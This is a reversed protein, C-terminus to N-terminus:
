NNQMKTLFDEPVKSLDEYIWDAGNLDGAQFSTTLALCYSGARKAAKVGSVADEIVICERPQCGIMQAAKLYIDPAPKKHEIDGGTVMADFLNESLGIGKLNIRMKIYDASTALALKYAKDKASRVFKQAGPLAYLRGKVLTEYIEYTRAKAKGIDLQLGYKEAVGGIYRNEGTGVFPKFDEPVPHVGYEEFMEIAARSIFDESDVLVGDMDFLLGKIM